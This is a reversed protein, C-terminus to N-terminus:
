AVGEAIPADRAQKGGPRQAKPLNGIAAAIRLWPSALVHGAIKGPAKEKADLCVARIAIFAKIKRV